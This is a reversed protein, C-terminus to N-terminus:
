VYWSTLKIYVKIMFHVHRAGDYIHGEAFLQIIESCPIHMNGHRALDISRGTGATNHVIISSKDLLFYCSAQLVPSRITFRYYDIIHGYQIEFM